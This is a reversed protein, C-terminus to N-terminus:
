CTSSSGNSEEARARIKNDVSKLLIIYQDLEDPTDPTVLADKLEAGFGEYLSTRTAANNCSVEAAYRQFYALHDPFNPDMQRLSQLNRETTRVRHLEGFANELLTIQAEVSAININGEDILQLIQEYAKGKPFGVAYAM